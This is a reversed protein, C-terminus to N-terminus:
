SLELNIQNTLENSIYIILYTIQIYKEIKKEVAIIINGFNFIKM